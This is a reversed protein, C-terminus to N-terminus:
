TLQEGNRTGIARSAAACAATASFDASPFFFYDLGGSGGQSAAFQVMKRVGHAGAPIALGRPTTRRSTLAEEPM